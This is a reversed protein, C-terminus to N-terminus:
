KALNWWTIRSSYWNSCLRISFLSLVHLIPRSALSPYAITFILAVKFLLRYWSLTPLYTPLLSIYSSIFLYICLYTSLYTSLHIHLSPLYGQFSTTITTIVIATTITTILIHHKNFLTECPFRPFQNRSSYEYESVWKWQDSVWDYVWEIMCKSTGKYVWDHAWESM